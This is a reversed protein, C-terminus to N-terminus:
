NEERLLATAAPIAAAIGSASVPAYGYETRAGLLAATSHVMVAALIAHDFHVQAQSEELEPYRHAMEAVIGPVRAVYAGLIGTLVDGSGPTAAWSSGTDVVMTRGDPSAIITSRGKLLVTCALDEALERVSGLRDQVTLDAFRAFEGDHPTIVTLGERNRVQERLDESQTLLTIGDADVVVPDASSLVSKLETAARQDLGRGPGVAYAHSSYNHVLDKVRLIEPPLHAMAVSEGVFRVGFSTSKMAAVACMEGAGQFKESGACISVVGGSYKHADAAPEGAFGIAIPLEPLLEPIGSFDYQPAARNLSYFEVASVGLLQSSLRLEGIGVDVLVVQGCRHAAVGHARRLGGFTVTVTPRIYAPLRQLSWQAEMAAFGRRNVIEPEPVEGTDANVGSPVDIALIPVEGAVFDIIEEPLAKGAGLGAIGDIILDCEMPLEDVVVGGAATFAALAPSHADSSILFAEVRRDRALEAGAYLADGGNGGPGVLLVVHRGGMVRAVDAVRAAADQMLEDPQTQADFLVEEAERIQQATYLRKM